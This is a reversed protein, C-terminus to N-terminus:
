NTKKFDPVMVVGDWDGPKRTPKVVQIHTDGHHVASYLDSSVAVYRIQAELWACVRRM